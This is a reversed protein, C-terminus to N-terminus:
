FPFWPTSWPALECKQLTEMEDAAVESKPLALLMIGIFLSVPDCCGGVNM